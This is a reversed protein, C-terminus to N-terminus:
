STQKTELQKTKLLILIDLWHLFREHQKKQLEENTKRYKQTADMFNMTYHFFIGSIESSVEKRSKPKLGYRDRGMWSNILRKIPDNSSDIFDYFSFLWRLSNLTKDTRYDARIEKWKSKFKFELPESKEIKDLTDKLTEKYLKIDFVKCLREKLGLILRRVIVMWEPEGNAGVLLEELEDKGIIDEAAEKNYRMVKEETRKAEEGLHKRLDFAAIDSTSIQYINFVGTEPLSLAKRLRRAEEANGSQEAQEILGVIYNRKIEAHAVTNEMRNAELEDLRRKWDTVTAAHVVNEKEEADDDGENSGIDMDDADDIMSGDDLDSFTDGLDKVFNIFGVGKMIWSVVTLSAAIAPALALAWASLALNVYFQVITSVVIKILKQILPDFIKMVMKKMFGAFKILVKKILRWFISEKNKGPGKFGKKSFLHKDIFPKVPAEKIVMEKARESPEEFKYEHPPMQAPPCKMDTPVMDMAKPQTPFFVSDKVDRNKHFLMSIVNWIAQAVKKIGKMLLKMFKWLMKGLWKLLQGVKKLVWKTIQWIKKGLWKAFEWLKKGVWKIVSWIKGFIWKIAKWAMEFIFQIASIITMFTDVISQRIEPWKNILFEAVKIWFLILPPIFKQAAKKVAHKKLEKTIDEEDQQNQFQKFLKTIYKKFDDAKAFLSNSANFLREKIIPTQETEINVNAESIGSRHPIVERVGAMEEFIDAPMRLEVAAM